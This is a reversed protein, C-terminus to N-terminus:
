AGLCGPQMCAATGLWGLWSLLQLTTLLLQVPMWCEEKCASGCKKTCLQALGREALQSPRLVVVSRM